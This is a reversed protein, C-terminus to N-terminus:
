RRPTAPPPLAEPAVSFAWIFTAATPIFDNDTTVLLLRRGDDLDPGLALGEVKEPFSEGALAFSPDLLDLFPMKLVVRVGEPAGTAPLSEIASVDTAGSVDLRVIRKFAAKGGSENDREIALFEHDGIALLENFGYKRSDLPVIYERTGLHELEIELMRCNVGKNDHDQLLPNQLLAFLRRGDPSIALGEFGKNTRRGRSNGQIERDKDADPHLIGFKEPVPLVRIRKGQKDFEYIYPGYEDSVYLTGTPSRRIGEPDLRMSAAPHEVDFASSLGIFQRGAEDVLLTTEMLKPEIRHEPGLVPHIRFLEIRNPFSVAGNDPGRDSLLYYSDGDGTWEIASGFAGMRDRPIGDELTGALGSLDPLNGEITATGLL